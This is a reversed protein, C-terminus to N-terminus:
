RSSPRTGSSGAGSHARKLELLTKEAVLYIEDEGDGDIDASTIADGVSGAELLASVRDFILRGDWVIDGWANMERLAGEPTVALFHQPCPAESATDRFSTFDGGFRELRPAVYTTWLTEGNPGLGRLALENGQRSIAGVVMAADCPPKVAELGLPADSTWIKQLPKGAADFLWLEPNRIGLGLWVKGYRPHHAVVLQAINRQRRTAYETEGRANLRALGSELGLWLQPPSSENDASVCWIRSPLTRQWLTKGELDVVQLRNGGTRLLVLWVNGGVKWPVVVDPFFDVAVPIPQLGQATLRWVKADATVAFVSKTFGASLSVIRKDFNWLKGLKWRGAPEQFELSVSTKASSTSVAARLLRQLFSPATDRTTPLPASSTEDAALTLGAPPAVRFEGRASRPRTTMEDFITTWMEGSDAAGLAWIPTGKDTQARVVALKWILYSECDIWQTVALYPDKQHFRIRHCCRGAVRETGDYYYEMVHSHLWSLADRSLFIPAAVSATLCGTEDEYIDGAADEDVFAALSSPQRIIRYVLNEPAGGFLRLQKDWVMLIREGDAVFRSTAAGSAECCTINIRAPREYSVEINQERLVQRNEDVKIEALHRGKAYFHETQAYADACRKLIEDVARSTQPDDSALGEHLSGCSKQCVSATTDPAAAQAPWSACHFFAAVVIVGTFVSLVRKQFFTM